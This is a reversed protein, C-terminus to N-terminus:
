IGEPTVLFLPVTLELILPNRHNYFNSHMCKYFIKAINEVTKFLYIKIFPIMQSM